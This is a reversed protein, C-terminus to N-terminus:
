RALEGHVTQKDTDYDEWPTNQLTDVLEKLAPIQGHEDPMWRDKALSDLEGRSDLVAQDLVKQVSAPVQHERGVKQYDKAGKVAGLLDELAKASDKQGRIPDGYREQYFKLGGELLFVQGRIDKDMMVDVVGAADKGQGATESVLEHVKAAWRLVRERPRGLRPAGYASLFAAVEPRAPGDPGM